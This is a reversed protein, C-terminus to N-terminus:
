SAPSPWCRAPSRWGPWRCGGARRRRAARLRPRPGPRRAGGGRRRLAHRLGDGALLPLAAPATAARRWAASRRCCCRRRRHVRPRAHRPRRRAPRAIEPWFILAVGALGLVGGVVFRGGVPSASCRQRASGPRAAALGLLRGRGAGVARLARRSLRLHLVRRLPLRGAAGALRPRALPFRLREGRWLAFALSAAAPSRTACRSASSRRWTALAPLHDCALDHGLDPRLRRVAALDQASAGAATLRLRLEGPRQMGPRLSRDIGEVIVANMGFTLAGDLARDARYQALVDGVAHGPVGTAPDVDPISCRSCPKVLKLRVPGDPTDFRSRTSITRATRM